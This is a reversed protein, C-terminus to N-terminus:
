LNRYDFDHKVVEIQDSYKLNEIQSLIKKVTEQHKLKNYDPFSIITKTTAELHNFEKSLGILKLLDFEDFEDRVGILLLIENGKKIRIPIINSCILQLPLRKGFSNNQTMSNNMGTKPYVFDFNENGFLNKLPQILNFLFEMRSNDVILIKDYKLSLGQFSTDSIEPIINYNKCEDNNSLWVLVGTVSTNSVNSISSNIENYNTSNLFCKITYALEVFYEKFKDKPKPPYRDFSYKSSIIGIELLEEVLPCKYSILGDIGHTLRKEADKKKHDESYSCKLSINNRYNNKYGILEEFFYKVIDEGQEGIVKSWEGM